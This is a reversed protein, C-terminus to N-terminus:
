GIKAKRRKKILLRAERFVLVFFKIFNILVSLLIISVLIYGAEERHKNEGFFDTLDMLTYLYLSVMVENFVSVKNEIPSPMPQGLIILCQFVISTILLFIIQFESHDRLFILVITTWLWRVLTIVNWYSGIATNTNLGVTLTGYNEKYDKDNLSQGSVKQNKLIKIFVLIASLLSVIIVITMVSSM